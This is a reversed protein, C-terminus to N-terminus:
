NKAGVAAGSYTMHLLPFPREDADLDSRGDIVFGHRKYFEVAHENQENVSLTLAPERALADNMLATGVGTGRYQDEVFMMELKGNAIGAFGCAVGDVEAVTLFVSPLYFETVRKRYFAIDDPTLFDYNSSVASHWISVLKSYESAGKCLRVTIQESM